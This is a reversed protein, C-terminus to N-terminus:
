EGQFAGAMSADLAARRLRSAEIWGDTKFLEEYAEISPHRTMVFHDWLEESVVPLECDVSLVIEGGAQKILPSIMKGYKRYTEAGDSHLLEHRQLITM